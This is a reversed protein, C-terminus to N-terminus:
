PASTSSAPQSLESAPMAAASSPSSLAPGSPVASGIARTITVSTGPEGTNSVMYPASPRATLTSSVARRARVRAARSISAENRLSRHGIVGDADPDDQDRLQDSPSPFAIGFRDVM